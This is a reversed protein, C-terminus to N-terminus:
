VSGSLLQDLAALFVFFGAKSYNDVKDSCDIKQDLNIYNM